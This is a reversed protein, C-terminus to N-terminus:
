SRSKMRGEMEQVYVIYKTMNGKLEVYIIPRV